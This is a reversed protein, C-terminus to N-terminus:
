RFLSRRFVPLRHDFVFVDSRLPTKKDRTDRWHTHDIVKRRGERTVLFFSKKPRTAFAEGLADVRRRTRAAGVPRPVRCSCRARRRERPECAGFTGGLSARRRPLRAPQFLFRVPTENSDWRGCRRPSARRFRSKADRRTGRREDRSARGEPRRKTATGGARITRTTRLVSMRSTPSPSPIPITSAAAEPRSRARRSPRSSAMPGSVDHVTPDPPDHRLHRAASCWRSPARHLLTDCPPTPHTPTLGRRIETHQIRSPNRTREPRTERLSIPRLFFSCSCVQATREWALEAATAGGPGSHATPLPRPEGSSEEEDVSVNPMSRKKPLTPTSAFLADLNRKPLSEDGDATFLPCMSFDDEDEDSEADEVPRPWAAMTMELMGEAEEEKRADSGMETHRGTAGRRAKHDLAARHTMLSGRVRSLRDQLDSDPNM